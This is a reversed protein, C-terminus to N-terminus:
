QTQDPWAALKVEVTQSQGDRLIGLKVTDGVQKTDLYSSIDEVKAVKRGDVTTIVDGGKPLASTSPSPSPAGPTPTASPRQSPRRTTQSPTTAGKLGAGAAPSNPMVQVVYVGESTSLGLQQAVDPTLAQGSIGLWPHQVVSGALMQPLGAKAANIPVAFGVGVSGRVPSEISSNIGVVEGRSNLLPGGSNGPNIAADTQLMNRIPRANGEERTRGVASIFGVTVTRDLGFPNGIAIALQGPKVTDSDGLTAVHLKDAAVDIKILALDNGPDRGLLTAPVTTGDALTVELRRAGSVVHNNTLIHGQDDIIVGSGAGEQPFQGFPTVRGVGENTIFVVSPAVRQYVDSITSELAQVAPDASPSATSAASAAPTAPAQSAAQSPSAAPPALVSLASAVSQFQLYGVVLAVGLVVGLLVGFANRVLDRM